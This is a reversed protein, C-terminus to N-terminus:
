SRAEIWPVECGLTLLLEATDFEGILHGNFGAECARDADIGDDCDAMAIIQTEGFDPHRRLRRALDYADGGPLSVNILFIGPKTDCAAEMALATSAVSWSDVGIVALADGIREAVDARAEVILVTAPKARLEDDDGSADTRHAATMDRLIYRKM